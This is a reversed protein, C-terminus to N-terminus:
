SRAWPDDPASGVADLAAEMDQAFAPDPPPAQALMALASALPRGRAIAPGVPARDDPHVIVFTPRERNVVVVDEHRAIAERADRPIRVQEAKITAM